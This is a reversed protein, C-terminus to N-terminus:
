LGPLLGFEALRRLPYASSTDDKRFNDDDDRTGLLTKIMVAARNAERQREGTTYLVDLVSRLRQVQFASRDIADQVRDPLRELLTRMRRDDFGAEALVDPGFADRAIALAPEIVQRIGAKIADLEEQNIRGEFTVLDGMRSPLGPEALGCAIAYLHRTVADQNGLLFV